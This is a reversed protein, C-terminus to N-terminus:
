EAPTEGPEPEAEALASQEPEAVAAPVSVAPAPAAPAAHAAAAPQAAAGPINPVEGERHVLIRIEPTLDVTLRIRAKHEGLNRIPQVDIQRRDMELGTKQTIAESIMQGTISGYLKGNEGAKSAFPLVLNVLKEAVSSMEDNLVSRRANAHKRIAEANKMAGSTALVALGQPILFNRGYGDAVRKVDGAHGLKYVDKTLLVKM